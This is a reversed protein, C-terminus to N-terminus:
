PETGEPAPEATDLLRALTAALARAAQSDPGDLPAMLRRDLAAVIARAEQATETGAQTLTLRVARSDRPDPRRIVLHLAELSRILKSVYIQQLTAYAALERQTPEIGRGAMAHLSALLAYQAHTLGLHAIARDVESRWRMALHWVLSGATRTDQTM